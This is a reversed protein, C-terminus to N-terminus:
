TEAIFKKAIGIAQQIVRFVPLTTCNAQNFNHKVNISIHTYTPKEDWSTTDLNNFFHSRL